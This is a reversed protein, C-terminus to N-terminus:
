GSGDDGGGPVCRVVCDSASTSGPPSATGPACETCSTASASDSYTNAPCASCKFGACVCGLCACEVCFVCRDHLRM